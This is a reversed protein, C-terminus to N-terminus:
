WGTKKSTMQVIQSLIDINNPFVVSNWFAAFDIKVRQKSLLTSKREKLVEEEEKKVAGNMIPFNLPHFPIFLMSLSLVIPM